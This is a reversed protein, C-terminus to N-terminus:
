RLDCDADVVGVPVSKLVLHRNEERDRDLELKQESLILNNTALTAKAAKDGLLDKFNEWFTPVDQLLLTCRFHRLQVTKKLRHHAAM